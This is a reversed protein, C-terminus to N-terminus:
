AGAGSCSLFWCGLAAPGPLQVVPGLLWLNCASVDLFYLAVVLGSLGAAAGAGAGALELDLDLDLDLELELELELCGDLGVLWVM